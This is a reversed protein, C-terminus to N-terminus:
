SVIPPRRPPIPQPGRDGPDRNAERRASEVGQKSRYILEEPLRNAINKEWDPHRRDVFNGWGVGVHNPVRAGMYNPNTMWNRSYQMEATMANATEGTRKNMYRDGYLNYTAFMLGVYPMWYKQNNAHVQEMQEDTYERGPILLGYYKGKEQMALAKEHTDGSEIWGAYLDEVKQILVCGYEDHASFGYKDYKPDTLEGAEGQEVVMVGDAYITGTIRGEDILPTMWDIIQGTSLEDNFGYDDNM